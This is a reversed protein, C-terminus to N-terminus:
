GIRICIPWILNSKSTNSVSMAGIIDSDATECRNNDIKLYQVTEAVYRSM